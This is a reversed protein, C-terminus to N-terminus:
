DMGMRNNNQQYDMRYGAKPGNTSDDTKNPQYNKHQMREQAKQEDVNGKQSGGHMDYSQNLQNHVKGPSHTTVGQDYNMHGASNSMHHGGGGMGAFSNSAVLILIIGILNGLLIKRLCGM